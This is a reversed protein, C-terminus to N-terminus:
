LSSSGKWRKFDESHHWCNKLVACACGFMFGTIGDTDAERSRQDAIDALKLGKAMDAEMMDWEEAYTFCRLSYGDSSNKDKWDQYVKEQGELLKM